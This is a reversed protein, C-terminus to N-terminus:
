GEIFLLQADVIHFGTDIIQANENWTDDILVKSRDGGDFWPKILIYGGDADITSNFGTVAKGISPMEFEYVTFVDTDTLNAALIEM